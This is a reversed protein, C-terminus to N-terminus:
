FQGKKARVIYLENNRSLYKVTCFHVRIVQKQMATSKYSNRVESM